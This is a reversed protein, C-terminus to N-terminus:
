HDWDNGKVILQSHVEIRAKYVLHLLKELRQFAIGFLRFSTIVPIELLNKGGRTAELSHQFQSCDINGLV